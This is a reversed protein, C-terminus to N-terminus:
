RTLGWLPGLEMLVAIVKRGYPDKMMMLDALSLNSLADSIVTTGSTGQDSASTMLGTIAGGIEFTERMDEWYTSPPVDEAYNILLSGGCNYVTSTYIMPLLYLGSDAPVLELAAKYCYMLTPDDDPMVSAPVKMVNRVFGVFGEFTPKPTM